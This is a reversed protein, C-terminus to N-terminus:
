ATGQTDSQAADPALLRATIADLRDHMARREAKEQDTPLNVQVAVATHAQGYGFTQGAVGSWKSAAIATNM